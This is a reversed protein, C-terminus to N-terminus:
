RGDDQASGGGAKGHRQRDDHTLSRLERRLIKGSATRPLDPLVGVQRPCTYAALKERRYWALADPDAETGPRPGTLAKVPGM